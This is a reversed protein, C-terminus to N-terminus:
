IDYKIPMGDKFAPLLTQQRKIKGCVPCSASLNVFFLIILSCYQNFIEPILFNQKNKYGTM